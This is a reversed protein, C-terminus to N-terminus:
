FWDGRIGQEQVPKELDHRPFDPSGTMEDEQYHIQSNPRLVMTVTNQVAKELMDDLGELSREVNEVVRLNPKIAPSKPVFLTCCDEYPLISLDYTGIQQSLDIIEQKDMTVLPRLLPLETVRGIVNMSALTQSAVQGLSDGTVLALADNAEALKTAIRLMARRMLTIMLNDQGAGALSTQIDTFPVLHIKVRGSYQSLVKALEIVKEEAKRSTFPYSHFHVCEVELGRRMASWGAVPSDIGGSLLLMAKGNTGLPFGGAGPLVQCYLLARDDRVEVRLDLEPNKVDVKLCPFAALLPESIIRNLDHSSHPFAKWVRRGSVKFTTDKEISLSGLFERAKEQIQELEPTCVVVPIIATIGFVKSLPKLLEDAPEGGLDIYIRGYDKTIQAKPFGNLLRKVHNLVVQEFRARNRGKLMIEGLRLMLMDVNM